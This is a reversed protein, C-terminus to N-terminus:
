SRRALLPSTKRALEAFYEVAEPSRTAGVNAAKDLSVGMRKDNLTRPIAPVALIEDPLHRPSFHTRITTNIKRKLDEDLDVGEALLM